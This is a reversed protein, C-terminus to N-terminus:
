FEGQHRAVKWRARVFLVRLGAHVAVAPRLLIGAQGAIGVVILYMM